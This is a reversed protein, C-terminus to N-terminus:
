EGETTPKVHDAGEQPEALLTEAVQKLKLVAQETFMGVLGALAAFGFPSTQEITASPSFFGGRIVFYFVLGLTSGVFPLLIYMALWSFVLERNGVYWYLSRLAHVLSGLAGAMAVIFILRVEDSVSLTWFLFAVPSSAPASGTAPAPPPWFQVLGYLLIISALILYATILVIGVPGVLSAGVGTRKATFAEQPEERAETEEASTTLEEESM